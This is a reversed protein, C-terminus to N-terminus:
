QVRMFVTAGNDYKVLFHPREVGYWFDQHQQGITMRLHWTEVPGKPMEVTEQGMVKLGIKTQTANAAVVNTFTGEWGEAWPIGRFVMLASDNDLSDAPVNITAAKDGEKTKAKVTMKGDSYTTVLSFDNATGIIERTGSLPRLNDARVRMVIKDDMIGLTFRQDLVYANGERRIDITASGVEKGDAARTIVYENHEPDNGWPAKLTLGTAPKSCAALLITVTLLLSWRKM